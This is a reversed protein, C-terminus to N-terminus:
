SARGRGSTKELNRIKERSGVARGGCVVGGAGGRASWCRFQDEAGRLSIEDMAARTALVRCVPKRGAGKSFDGKERRAVFGRPFELAAARFKLIMEASEVPMLLRRPRVRCGPMFSPVWFRRGIGVSVIAGDRSRSHYWHDGEQLARVRAGQVLFAKSGGRVKPEKDAITGTKMKGRDSNAYQRRMCGVNLGAV